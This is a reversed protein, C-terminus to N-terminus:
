RPLHSTTAGPPLDKNYGARASGTRPVIPSQTNDVSNEEIPTGYHHRHQESEWWRAFRVLEVHPNASMRVERAAWMGYQNPIEGFEWGKYKGINRARGGEVQARAHEAPHGVEDQSIPARQPREHPAGPNGGQNRGGDVQPPGGPRRPRGGGAAPDEVHSQYSAAQMAGNTSKAPPSDAPKSDCRKAFTSRGIWLLSFAQEDNGSQWRDAAVELPKGTRCCFGETVRLDCISELLMDKQVTARTKWTSPNCLVRRPTM